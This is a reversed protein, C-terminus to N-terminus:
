KIRDLNNTNFQEVPFYLSGTIKFAILKGERALKRVYDVTLSLLFAVEAATYFLKKM